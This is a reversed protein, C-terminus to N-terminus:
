TLHDEPADQSASATARAAANRDFGPRFVLRPLGAAGVHWTDGLPHTRDVRIGSPTADGGLRQFVVRDHDYWAHPALPAFVEIGEFSEPTGIFVPQLDLGDALAHPWWRLRVGPSPM